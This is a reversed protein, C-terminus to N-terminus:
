PFMVVAGAPATYRHTDVAGTDNADTAQPGTSPAGARLVPYINMLAVAISRTPLCIRPALPMAYSPSLCAAQLPFTRDAAESVTKVQSGDLYWAHSPFISGRGYLKFVRRAYTLIMECWVWPVHFPAKVTNVGIDDTHAGARFKILGNVLVQENAPVTDIASNPHRAETRVVSIRSAEGQHYSFGFIIEGDFSFVTSPYKFMRFPPTWGQDHVADVVTLSTVRDTADDVTVRVHCFMLSRFDKSAQYTRFNALNKPPAENSTAVLGVYTKVIWDPEWIEAEGALVIPNVKGSIWSVTGVKIEHNM